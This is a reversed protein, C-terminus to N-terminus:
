ECGGSYKVWKECSNERATLYEVSRNNKCGKGISRLSATTEGLHVDNGTM